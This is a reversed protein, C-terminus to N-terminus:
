DHMNETLYNKIGVDKIRQFQTELWDCSNEVDELIDDLLEKSGFDKKEACNAIIGQLRGVHQTAVQYQNNLQDEVSDGVLITDYKAMDPVGELFLIREILKDGHKMVRMSEERDHHAIKKYGWNDKMKYHIYYMNTATLAIMLAENLGNIIQDQGKM